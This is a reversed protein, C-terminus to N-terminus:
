SAAPILHNLPHPHTTRAPARLWVQADHLAAFCGAAGSQRTGKTRAIFHTIRVDANESRDACYADLKDAAEQIHQKDSKFPRPNAYRRAAAECSEQTDYPSGSALCTKLAWGYREQKEREKSHQGLIILIAIAPLLATLSIFVVRERNSSQEDTTSDITTQSEKIDSM